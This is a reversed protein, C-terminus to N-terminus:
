RAAGAAPPLDRDARAAMKEVWGKDQPAVEVPETAPAALQEMIEQAKGAPLSFEITMEGSKGPDKNVIPKSKLQPKEDQAKGYNQHSKFSDDKLFADVEEALEPKAIKLRVLSKAVARKMDERGAIKPFRDAAGAGAGLVARGLAKGLQENTLENLINTKGMEEIAARDFRKGSDELAAKQEKTAITITIRQYPESATIGAEFTTVDFELANIKEKIAAMGAADDKAIGKYKAVRNALTEKIAAIDAELGDRLTKVDGGNSQKIDIRIQGSSKDIELAHDGPRQPKDSFGIWELFAPPIDAGKAIFKEMEARLALAHQEDSEFQVNQELSPIQRLAELLNNRLQTPNTDAQASQLTIRLMEMANADEDGVTMQYPNPPFGVGIQVEADPVTTAIATKLATEAKTLLESKAM